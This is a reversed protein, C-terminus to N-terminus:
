SRFMERLDVGAEMKMQLVLLNREFLLQKYNAMTEMYTEEIELVELIKALGRKFKENAIEVNQRAIEVSESYIAIKKEYEGLSLFAEDVDQQLSKVKEEKELRAIELNNRATEIESAIVGGDYLPYSLQLGVEWLNHHFNDKGDEIYYGEASWGVGGNLTLSPIRKWKAEKLEMEKEALIYDLSMLAPNIESIKSLVQDRTFPLTFIDVEEEIVAIDDIREGVLIELVAKKSGLDREISILEVEENALDVKIQMYELKPILGKRFMAEADSARKRGRELSEVKLRCSEKARIVEYYASVVEYILDNVSEARTIRAQDLTIDAKKLNAKFSNYALIPQEIELLVNSQFLNDEMEKGFTYPSIYRNRYKTVNFNLNVTGNTFLEQVLSLNGYTITNKEKWESYPEGPFRRWLRKRYEYGPSSLQFQLSPVKQSNIQRYAEMSNGFTLTIEKVRTGGTLAMQVCESLTLSRVAPPHFASLFVVFCSTLIYVSSITVLSRGMHKMKAARVKRM